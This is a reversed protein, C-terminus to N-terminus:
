LTEDDNAARTRRTKKVPPPVRVLAWKIVTKEGNLGGSVVVQQSRRMGGAGGLYISDTLSLVGGTARLRWGDGSALRLLASQGDQVLAAQVDPHLHFRLTFLEGGPGEMIDEGRLDEGSAALYLRRHHVLRGIPRYGDHSMELLFAGDEEIREVTVHRPVRGLSGDKRIEVANKDDIGATSHAATARAAARWAADPGRFAGVNVILREKGVSMEFALPGGHAHAAYDAPPPPGADVIVLTKRATMREYGTHPARSAPKGTAQGMALVNDILEPSEEVAGNFLALGGDGHRYFRLMPAARDIAQQLWDPVPKRAGILALRVEVLDRLLRFQVSPNRERQGGDATMQRDLEHQLLRLAQPQRKDAGPLALGAYLLAKAAAIRGAGEPGATAVRALHRTQEALSQLFRRRFLADAGNLLFGGHTLWAALRRGLIDPRWAFRDWAGCEAIWGAVAHRATHRSNGGAERLDRLWQFCHLEEIWGQWATDPYWQPAGGGNKPDFTLTQGALRWTGESMRRGRQADGPWPDTPAQLVQDPARGILTFRYFFSGFLLSRLGEGPRRWGGRPRSM